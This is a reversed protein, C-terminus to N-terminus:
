SKHLDIYSNHSLSSSLCFDDVALMAHKSGVSVLQM